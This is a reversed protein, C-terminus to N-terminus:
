FRAKIMLKITRGPPPVTSRVMPDLYYQDTANNAQLETQWDANFQYKVYLDLTTASSRELQEGKQSGSLYILRGGTTLRSDLWRWGAHLNGSIKPTTLDSIYNASYGQFGGHVCDGALPKKDTLRHTDTIAGSTADCVENELLYAAGLDAFWLGQDTRGQLEIGRLTQQDLNSFRLDGDREIVNETRNHYYTLKVDAQAFYHIYALEINHSHEPELLRWKNVSASFGLTSEFMSPFRLAETYSLYVRQQESWHWTASLMPQWGHNKVAGTDFVTSSEGLDGYKDGFRCSLVGPIAELKGNLCSNQARHYRGQGDHPWMLLAQLEPMQSLEYDGYEISTKRIEGTKQYHAIDHALKELRWQKDKPSLFGAKIWQQLFAAAEPTHGVEINMKLGAELRSDGFMEPIKELLMAKADDQARYRSYKAGLTFELSQLPQWHLQQLFESEQRRGERPLQRFYNSDSDLQDNTRLQQKQGRLALKLQLNDRLQLTNSFELGTRQDDAHAVATNRFLPSAGPPIYQDDAIENAFNPFGGASNTLSDTDTHWIKSRLKLYPHGADWNHQLSFSRSDVLSEPWQALKNGPQLNGTRSAMIEGYRADTRRLMLEINQQENFHYTSKVLVSEMQHSTNPVEYGPLQRRALTRTPVLNPDVFPPMEDNYYQYNHKGSFYNGKDMLAYALLWDYQKDRGALALRYSYDDGTLPNNSKDSKMPQLLSLDNIPYGMWEGPEIFNTVERYDKGTLLTPFRPKVANSSGDVLLEAAFTDKDRLIDAAAITQIAIGGGVSTTVDALHQPGKYAQIGSILNSDIYNRNSIGRYGRWLTLAQETGDITVPVRGPGQIGRINPDIGGGNRADGSFVNTMGRLVDAESKGRFRETIEKNHYLTSRDRDYVDDAKSQQQQAATQRSTVEITDLRNAEAPVILMSGDAQPLAQWGSGALLLTLAQNSQYQGQLGVSRISRDPTARFHLKKGAIKSYATLAEYLSGPAIQLNLQQAAVPCASIVSTAILLPAISSWSRQSFQPFPV